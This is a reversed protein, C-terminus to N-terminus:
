IFIGATAQRIGLDLPRLWWTRKPDLGSFSSALMHKGSQGEFRVNRLASPM